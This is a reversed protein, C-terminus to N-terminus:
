TVPVWHLLLNFQHCAYNSADDPIRIPDTLLEASLVAALGYGSVPLTLNRPAMSRGLAYINHRVLEALEESRTWPPKASVIVPKTPDPQSATVAWCKVSVAPQSLMTDPSPNGTLTQVTLFGTSPWTPLAMTPIRPLTTGTMATTIGPILALWARAVLPTTPLKLTM